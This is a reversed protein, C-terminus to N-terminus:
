LRLLRVNEKKRKARPNKGDLETRAVDGKRKECVPGASGEGQHAPGDVKRLQPPNRLRGGKIKWATRKCLGMKRHTTTNEEMKNKVIAGNIRYARRTPSVV